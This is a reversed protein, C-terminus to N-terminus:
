NFMIHYNNLHMMFMVNKYFKYPHKNSFSAYSTVGTNETIATAAGTIKKKTQKQIIHLMNRQPYKISYVHGSICSSPRNSFIVLIDELNEIDIM